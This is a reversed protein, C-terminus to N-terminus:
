GRAALVMAFISNTATAAIAGARATSTKQRAREPPDPHRPKQTSPPAPRRGISLRDRPVPQPGVVSSRPRRRELPAERGHPNQDRRLTTLMVPKKAIRRRSFSQYRKPAAAPRNGRPHRM